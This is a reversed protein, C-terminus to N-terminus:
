KEKFYELTQYTYVLHNQLEYDSVELYEKDQVMLSVMQYRLNDELLDSKPYKKGTPVYIVRDVYGKAVMERGIDLHMRHPPNFSGGFIGIRM